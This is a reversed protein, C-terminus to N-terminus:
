SLRAMGTHLYASLTGNFAPSYVSMGCLADTTECYLSTDLQPSSFRLDTNGLSGTHDPFVNYKKYEIKLGKQQMDLILAQNM